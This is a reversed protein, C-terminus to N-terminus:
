PPSTKYLRFVRIYDFSASRNDTHVGVSGPETPLHPKYTPYAWLAYVAERRQKTEDFLLCVVMEQPNQTYWLQLQKSTEM